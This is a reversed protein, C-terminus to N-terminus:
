IIDNRRKRHFAITFRHVEHQLMSLFEFVEKDQIEFIEDNYFMKNTKHKSDKILSIVKIGEIGLEKLADTCNNIQYKGDIIILDPYNNNNNKINKFHRLTVNYINKYDDQGDELIYKRYKTKNLQGNSYNIVGGVQNKGSLNSIDLIVIEKININLFTELEGIAKLYHTDTLDVINMQANLVQESHKIVTQLIEHRIGSKPNTLFDCNIVENINTEFSTVIQDPILKTNYFRVLYEEVSSINNLSYSKFINNFTNTVQGNRVFTISLSIINDKISYAIFDKSLNDKFIINQINNYGQIFELEERLKLADEYRQGRSLFELKTELNKIVEKTNGNLFNLIKNFVAQKEEKTVKKVCYGLCLGLQYNLCPQGKKTCNNIPFVNKLFKVIRYASYGEPFPGFYHRGEKKKYNNTVAVNIKERQEIYIYPYKRNDKLRINYKPNFKSILSLELLLADKESSAMSIEYSDINQVLVKTKSSVNNAFYQLMRSKLKKSKGVYIVEGHNDKWLYCGYTDEVNTKIEKKLQEIKLDNM